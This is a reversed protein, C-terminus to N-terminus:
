ARAPEPTDLNTKQEKHNHKGNAKFKNTKAGCTICSGEMMGDECKWAWNNQGCNKCDKMNKDKGM